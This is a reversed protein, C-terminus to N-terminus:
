EFLRGAITPRKVPGASEWRAVFEEPDPHHCSIYVRM